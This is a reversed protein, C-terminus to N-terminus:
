QCQFCGHVACLTIVWFGQFHNIVESVNLIEMFSQNKDGETFTLQIFAETCLFLACHDTCVHLVPIASRSCQVVVSVCCDGKGATWKTAKEKRIANTCPCNCLFLTNGPYILIRKWLPHWALGAVRRILPLSIFSPLCLQGRWAQCFYKSDSWISFLEVASSNWGTYTSLIAKDWWHCKSTRLLTLSSSICVVCKFPTVVKGKLSVTKPFNCLILLPGQPIWVQCIFVIWLM